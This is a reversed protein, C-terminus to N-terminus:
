GVDCVVYVYKFICNIVGICDNEDNLLSVVFMLLVGVWYNVSQVWCWKM